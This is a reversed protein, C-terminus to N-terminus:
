PGDVQKELFCRDLTQHDSAESAERARRARRGGKRERVHNHGDLLQQNVKMLTVCLESEHQECECEEHTRVAAFSQKSQCYTVTIRTLIHFLTKM